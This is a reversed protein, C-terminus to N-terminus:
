NLCFKYLEDAANFDKDLVSIKDKKPTCVLDVPYVNKSKFAFTIM